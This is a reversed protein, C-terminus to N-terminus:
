YEGKKSEKSEQNENKIRSLQSMLLFDVKIQGHSSELFLHNKGTHIKGNYRQLLDYGFIFDVPM